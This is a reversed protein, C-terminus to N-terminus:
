RGDRGGAIRIRPDALSLLGDALLNAIILLTGSVMVAAMVVNRDQDRIAELIMRGMGPYSFVIEVLASGSLLASLQYGFITILPNLANRLAHRYIVRREPLGKARATRVYTARLVDIINGRAIRQLGALMGASLVLVPLVLHHLRDVAGRWLGAAGLSTAGSTPFLAVGLWATALDNVVIGAAYLAVLALFFNPISMGLFACVSFLRDIASNRHVGCYVGLPIAVLWTVLLALAGLLITNLMFPGLVSLAERDYKGSRGFNPVGWGFRWRAERVRFDDIYFDGDTEIVLACRDRLVELPLTVDIWREGRVLELEERYVVEDGDRVSVAVHRTASRDAGGGATAYLSFWVSEFVAADLPSSVGAPRAFRVRPDPPLASGAQWGRALFGNLDAIELTCPEGGGLARVRYSYRGSAAERTVAEIRAGKAELGRERASGLELDDISHQPKGLHLDFCLRTLWLVYQVYLPEHLKESREEQRIQALDANPDAKNRAYYSEGTLSGVLFVLVSVFLLTPIAILLRGALYSLM